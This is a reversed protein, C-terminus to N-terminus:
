EFISRSANLDVASARRYHDAVREDATMKGNRGNRQRMQKATRLWRSFARDADSKTKDFEYDRFLAEQEAMDEGLEAALAAHRATPQWTDPVFRWRETPRPKQPPKKVAGDTPGLDNTTPRLDLTPALADRSVNAVSERCERSDNDRLANEPVPPLVHRSPKDVRQHDCWKAIQILRQGSASTYRIIRGLRALTELSQRCDDDTMPFILGNLLRPNDVLRGADDAQSILGLFVLRDITPLPALKEDQWFEPKLTRIRAM